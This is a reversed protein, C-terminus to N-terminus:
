KNARDRTSGNGYRKPEVVISREDGEVLEVPPTYEITEEQRQIKKNKLFVGVILMLLSLMLLGMVAVFMEQRQSKM